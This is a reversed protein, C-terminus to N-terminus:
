ITLLYLLINDVQLSYQQIVYLCLSATKTCDRKVRVSLFSISQPVIYIVLIFPVVNPMLYLVDAYCQGDSQTRPSMGRLAYMRLAM